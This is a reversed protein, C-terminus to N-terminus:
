FTWDIGRRIECRGIRLTGSTAGFMVRLAIGNANTGNFVPVRIPPTRLVGTSNPSIRVDAANFQLLDYIDGYPSVGGRPEVILEFMTPTVWDNLAQFECQGYVIDWPVFGAKANTTLEVYNGGSPGSSLVMQYWTGPRNDTRAVQSTTIAAGQALLTWGRPVVGTISGGGPTATGGTQSMFPDAYFSLMNQPDDNNITFEAENRPALLRMVSALSNAMLQAGMASPHVGDTSVGTAPTYPTVPDSLARGMDAWVIGPTATAWTALANNLTVWDAGQGLTLGTLPPTSSLIPVAGSTLVTQAITTLDSYTTAWPISNAWNNTGGLIVVFRPHYQLADKWLRSLMDTTTNGGVGSEALLRFRHDMIANAMSFFGTDQLKYNRGTLSDGLLAVTYPNVAVQDPMRVSETSPMSTTCTGADTTSCFAIEKIFGDWETGVGAARGVDATSPMTTIVGTGSGTNPAVLLRGDMYLALTGSQTCGKIEHAQISPGTSSTWTATKSTGTTDWISFTMTNQYVQLKAYNASAGPGIQWLGRVTAEPTAFWPRGGYPSAMTSVCFNSGDANVLGHPVNLVDGVRTYQTGTSIVTSSRYIGDQLFVRGAPMTATVTVTGGVTVTFPCSVFQTATCPLNTGSATTAVVTASGVAGDTWLDFSGTGLTIVQPTATPAANNLYYEKVSRESLFGYANERMRGSTCTTEAQTGPGLAITPEVVSTANSARTFTLTENQTGRPFSECTDDPYVVGFRARFRISASDPMRNILTALNAKLDAIQLLAADITSRNRLQGAVDTNITGGTTTTGIVVTSSPPFTCTSGQCVPQGATVCGTATSIYGAPCAQGFGLGLAALFLVALRM